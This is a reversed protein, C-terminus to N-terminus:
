RGERYWMASALLLLLALLTSFLPLENVARVRYAGNARLGLWGPGSMARGPRVKTLRPLNIDAPDGDAFRAM